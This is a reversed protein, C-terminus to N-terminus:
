NISQTHTGHKKAFAPQPVGVISKSQDYVNGQRKMNATIQEKHTFLLYIIKMCLREMKRAQGLLVIKSLDCPTGMPIHTHFEGPM